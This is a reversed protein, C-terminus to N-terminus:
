AVEGEADAPRTREIILELRCAPGDLRVAGQDRVWVALGDVVREDLAVISQGHARRTGLWKAPIGGSALQITTFPTRLMLKAIVREGTVAERERRARQEGALEVGRRVAAAEVPECVTCGRIGHRDCYEPTPAPPTVAVGSVGM